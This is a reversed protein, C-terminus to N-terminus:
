QRVQFHVAASVIWQFLQACKEGVEIAADKDRRLAQPPALRQRLIQHLVTELGAKTVVVGAKQFVTAFKKQGLRRQRRAKVQRPFFDGDDGLVFQERGLDALRASAVCFGARGDFAHQAIQGLDLHAIRHHVRVVADAAILTQEIEIQAVTGRFEHQQFVGVVVLEVHRHRLQVEDAAVAARRRFGCGQVTQAAALPLFGLPARGGLHAIRRRFQEVKIGLPRSALAMGELDPWAIVLGERRTKGEFFRGILRGRDLGHLLVHQVAFGHVAQDAAIHAEALRLDGQAGREHGNRAALLHGNQHRGRQKGFLVELIKGVAEGFPRHLEGLQRAKATRLFRGFRQLAQNLTFDIDDDARVLQDLLIHVELVQAQDDDVFLMAEAHSLLFLQLRQAGLHIHQGEGGRGDRAREGHRQFAQAIEGDDGRRRLLPQGDLGEHVTIGVAQHAFRHQAFQLPAALHVVEVVLHFSDLVHELLQDLQQGLRADGDGVPLQALAFQLLHHAVEIVLSEVYQEARGNDLGANVHRGGIGDDDVAGVPEAERLQVLQAPADSSRVVLGIRVQERGAFLAQFGARLFTQLGDLHHFVQAGTEVKGHVIQFDAAGALHQAFRLAAVHLLDTKREVGLHEVVGHLRQLCAPFRVQRCWQTDGRFDIQMRRRQQGLVVAAVDVLPQHKVFPQGVALADVVEFCQLFFQDVTETQRRWGRLRQEVAM